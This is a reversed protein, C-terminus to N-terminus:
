EVPGYADSQNLKRLGDEYWGQRVHDHEHSEFFEVEEEVPVDLDRYDVWEGDIKVYTVMFNEGSGLGGVGPAEFIECWGFDEPTGGAIISSTAGTEPDSVVYTYATNEDVLDTIDIHKGDAVFWLREEELVVLEANSAQGSSFNDGGVLVAGTPSVYRVMARGAAILGVCVALIAAVLLMRTGLRKKRRTPVVQALVRDRVAGIDILEEERPCFETDTYHDMLKSIELKM